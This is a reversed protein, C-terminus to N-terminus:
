WMRDAVVQALSNVDDQAMQGSLGAGYVVAISNTGEFFVVHNVLPPDDLDAVYWRANTGVAPGDVEAFSEVAVGSTMAFGTFFGGRFEEAVDAPIPETALMVFSAVLLPGQTRPGGADNQYMSMHFGVSTGRDQMKNSTESMLSWNPGLDDATLNVSQASAVLEDPTQAQVRATLVLAVLFPRLLVPYTM